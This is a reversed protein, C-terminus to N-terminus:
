KDLGKKFKEVLSKKTETKVFSLEKESAWNTINWLLDNLFDFVQELVSFIMGIICLPLFFIKITANLLWDLFIIIKEKKTFTNMKLCKIMTKFYFRM